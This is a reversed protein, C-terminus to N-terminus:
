CCAELKTLEYISHEFAMQPIARFFLDLFAYRRKQGYWNLWVDGEVELGVSHALSYFEHIDWGQKHYEESPPDIKFKKPKTRIIRRWYWVNPLSVLIKGNSKLVRKFEKLVHFPSDCHELTEFCLIKDFINDKFGLFTADMQATLNDFRKFDIRV